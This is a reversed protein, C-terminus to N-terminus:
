KMAHGRPDERGGGFKIDFFKWTLYFELHLAKAFFQGRKFYKAERV